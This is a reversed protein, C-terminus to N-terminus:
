PVFALVAAPSGSGGALRLVGIVLTAGTPPLQELYALNELVLAGAGLALHNVQFQTDLGAEVGHTDTGLGAIQREELLFRAAAPSFGPFHAQGATDLGLFRAPDNWFASWGSCLLVLCGPPIKGHQEEWALVNQVTLVFDPQAAAQRRADIMVAPKVLAAAPIDDVGAAGPFFSLPANLHTASHEGMTFSRVFYGDQQLEATQEFRVPPDGSWLPIGPHIPHSLEVVRQFALNPM